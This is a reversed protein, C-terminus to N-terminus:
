VGSPKEADASRSDASMDTLSETVRRNLMRREPDYIWGWKNFYRIMNVTHIGLMRLSHYSAARHDHVVTVNPWFMTRYKRHMRRTLDIDEPYMFFREDFLGVEKLAEVRFFMFSGQHYPINLPEGHDWFKLMYRRDLRDSLLRPMFRRFILNMPTPLLRVSYQRRGDPYTMAPILQGVDPNSEMYRVIPGIVNEGFRVDSNIVLHFDARRRIAMRIAINHAAGYGINKDTRIYEVLTDGNVFAGIRADPSNDVIYIKDIGNSKLSSICTSLEQFDTLYTVISATTAM